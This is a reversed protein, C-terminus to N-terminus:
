RVRVAWGLGFALLCIPILMFGATTWSLSKVISGFIVPGLLQGFNQGLLIASLGLGALEPHRMVEPAAAFTATPIFGIVFGYIIMLAGIQWGSIQFPFLLIVALVLYPISFVLRRSNIRDSFWGSLPSSIMIIFAPLSTIFSAQSLSFGRVENLFTPYYTAINVLALNFCAFSGTLLWIDRNHLAKWTSPLSSNAAYDAPQLPPRRLLLGSFVAMILAFAMGVWWVSQWGSNAAMVPAINYMFISGLPVWTAWIGMPAGQKSPPFWMAITAPAAVGILGFGIGELIRGVLLLPFSSALAGLASGSALGVMAFMVTARPGFRQLILGTPLALVLGVGAISSMLLGAQTLNIQFAEMLVPILPPVKYQNFPAVVSALYVVVLIVWAYPLAKQSPGPATLTEQM